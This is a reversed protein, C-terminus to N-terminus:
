LHTVSQLAAGKPTGVTRRAYFCSGRADSKAFEEARKASEFLFAWERLNLFAINSQIM